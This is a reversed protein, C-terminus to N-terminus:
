FRQEKENWTRWMGWFAEELNHAFRPADFLPSALVQARLGARLEALKSLNGALALSKDTYDAISTAVWENLGAATMLSAGQRSLLTDGELTLTPVGMWLAECTTTGGNYPATDLAIDIHAYHALLDRIERDDDVVLISKAV